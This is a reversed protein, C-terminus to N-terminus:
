REFKLFIQSDALWIGKLGDNIAEKIEDNDVQDFIKIQEPIHNWQKNNSKSALPFSVETVYKAIIRPLFHLQLEMMDHDFKDDKRRHGFIDIFLRRKQNPAFKQANRILALIQEVSTEFDDEELIVHYLFITSSKLNGEPFAEHEIEAYDFGNWSETFNKEREAVQSWWHDRMQRIQKRKEPNGGFLDHCSACLPAANDLDDNGGQAQPLIHHVEVFPKRCICCRFASRRKALTKIKENFGM